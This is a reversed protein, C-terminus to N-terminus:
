LGLIEKAEDAFARAEPDSSAVAREYIALAAPTNMDDDLANFFAARDAPGAWSGDAPPTKEGGEQDLRTEDFDWDERYRQRLLLRRVALPDHRDLLDHVF